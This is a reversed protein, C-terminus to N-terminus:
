RRRRRRRRRRRTATILRLLSTRRWLLRPRDNLPLVMSDQSRFLMATCSLDPRDMCITLM